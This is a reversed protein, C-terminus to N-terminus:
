DDVVTGIRAPKVGADVEARRLAAMYSIAYKRIAAALDPAAAAYAARRARPDAKDIGVETAIWDVVFRTAAGIIRESEVCVPPDAPRFEVFEESAEVGM